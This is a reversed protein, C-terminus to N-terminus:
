AHQVRALAKERYMASDATAIVDPLTQGAQWQTVGISASVKIKAATAGAGLPITYEGLAWKQIREVQSKAGTLECDLIMVFEDGGWRGVIDTSRSNSKLEKSFQQLLNDGAIHGYTDNVQKFRELDLM